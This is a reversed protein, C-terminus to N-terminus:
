YKHSSYEILFMDVSRSYIGQSGAYYPMLQLQM